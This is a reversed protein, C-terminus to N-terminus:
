RTPRRAPHTSKRRRARLGLGGHDSRPDEGQNSLGAGAGARRDPQRERQRPDHGAQQAVGRDLEAHPLRRRASQDLIEDRPEPVPAEDADSGPEAVHGREPDDPRHDGDGEAAVRRRQEDAVGRARRAVRTRRPPRARRASPSLRTPDRTTSRACVAITMVSSATKTTNMATVYMSM